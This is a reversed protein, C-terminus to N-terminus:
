AGTLTFGPPSASAAPAATVTIAAPAACRSPSLRGSSRARLTSTSRPM